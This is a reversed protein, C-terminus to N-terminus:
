TGSRGEGCSWGAPLPQGPLRATLPYGRPASSWGRVRRGSRRGGPDGETGAPHGRLRRPCRRSGGRSRPSRTHLAAALGGHAAGCIGRARGATGSGMGGPHRQQRGLHRGEARRGLLEPVFKCSFFPPHPSHRVAFM